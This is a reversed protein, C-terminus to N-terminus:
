EDSKKVYSEAGYIIKWRDNTKKIIFLIVAPDNLSTSGDKFRELITCNATYIVTSKDLFACKENIVKVKLTSLANFLPGLGDTLEQYNLAKGNILYLFDPSDLFSECTMKLNAEECGKFMRDAVAKVELRIRTKDTDSLPEDMKEGCASIVLFLAASILRFIGPHRSKQIM